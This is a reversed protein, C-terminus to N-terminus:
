KTGVGPQSINPRRRARLTSTPTLRCNAILGYWWSLQNTADRLQTRPNGPRKQQILHSSLTERKTANLKLRSAEFWHVVRNVAEQLQTAAASKNHGRCAIALDDAYASVLTSEDFGELLDNIYIVFLLPSLASGQPLGEKFTYSTGFAGNPNVRAIHNTFWTSTWQVYRLPIGLPLM